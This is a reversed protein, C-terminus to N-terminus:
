ETRPQVITAEAWPRHPTSAHFSITCAFVIRLEFCALVLHPEPRHLAGDHRVGSAMQGMCRLRGKGRGQLAVRRAESCNPLGPCWLEMGCRMGCRDVWRSLYNAPAGTGQLCGCWWDTGYHGQGGDPERCCFLLAKGRCYLSRVFLSHVDEVVLTSRICAWFAAM